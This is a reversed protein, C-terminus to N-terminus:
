RFDMEVRAVLTAQEREWSWRTRAADLSAQRARKLAARDDLWRQLGEALGAWDGPAYVFGANAPLTNMVRRQGPTDTAVLALGALMYLFLKNSVTLRKNRNISPELAFGIDHEATRSPLETPHVQEHFVLRDTVHMQEALKVLDRRVEESLHGRLHVEFDGRLSGAARILDQLGRDLGITQSFWYLSVGDSHRDLRRGDFRERLALPFVNHVVTPRTIDYREALEDAIGDSPATVHACGALYRGQIFDVLQADLSQQEDDPLEGLHDDEADFAFQAGVHRAIQAAAPLAALNHAIYLDAHVSRGRMVLPPIRESYALEALRPRVGIHAAAARGLTRVGRTILWLPAGATRAKGWWLTEHTWRKGRALSADWEIMRPLAHCMLVHVDFGADALADAEKEVRPGTSLSGTSVICIRKGPAKSTRVRSTVSVM